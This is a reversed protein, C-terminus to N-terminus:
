SAMEVMRRERSAAQAEAFRAALFADQEARSIRDCYDLDKDSLSNTAEQWRRQEVARLHKLERRQRLAPIADVLRFAGALRDKTAKLQEDSAPRLNDPWVHVDAWSRPGPKGVLGGVLGAAFVFGLGHDADPPDGGFGVLGGIRLGCRREQHRALCHALEHEITGKASPAGAGHYRGALVDPDVIIFAEGFDRWGTAAWAHLGLHKPDGARVEPTPLGLRGCLDAAYGQAWAERRLREERAIMAEEYRAALEATTEKM